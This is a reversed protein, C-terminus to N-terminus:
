ARDHYRVWEEASGDSRQLNFGLLKLLKDSRPAEGVIRLAWVEREGLQWAKRLMRRAERVVVIPHTRKMDVFDIWLWCRGHQWALGGVGWLRPKKLDDMGAFAIVPTEMRDPGYLGAVDTATIPIIVSRNRRRRAM